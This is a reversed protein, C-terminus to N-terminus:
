GRPSLVKELGSILPPLDNPVTGWVRGLDVEFYVHILRNRLGILDSWPINPCAAQAKRKVRAAAEGVIGISKLTGLVLLRDTGLDARTHERAFGVAERAADLMHRM